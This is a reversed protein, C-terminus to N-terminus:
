IHVIIYKISNLSLRINKQKINKLYKIGYIEMDVLTKMM